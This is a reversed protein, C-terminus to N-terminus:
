QSAGMEVSHSRIFADLSARPVRITKGIKVHALEGSAIRRYLTSHTMLGSREIEAPSYYLKGEPFMNFSASSM